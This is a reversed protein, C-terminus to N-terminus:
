YVFSWHLEEKRIQYGNLEARLFYCCVCALANIVDSILQNAFRKAKNNNNNGNIVANVVLVIFTLFNYTNFGFNGGTDNCSDESDRKMLHRFTECIQNYNSEQHLTPLNTSFNEMPQKYTHYHEDSKIGCVKACKVLLTNQFLWELRIFQYTTQIGGLYCCNSLM